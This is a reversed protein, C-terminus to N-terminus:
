KNSEILINEIDSLNYIENKNISIKSLLHFNIQPQDLKGTTWAYLVPEEHTIRLPSEKAFLQGTNKDFNYIIDALKESTKLNLGNLLLITEKRIEIDYLESSIVPIGSGNIQRIAKQLGNGTKYFIISTGAFGKDEMWTKHAIKGFTDIAHHNCSFLLTIMLTAVLTKM